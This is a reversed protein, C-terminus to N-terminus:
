KIWLWFKLYEMSKKEFILFVLYFKKESGQNQSMAMATRSKVLSHMKENEEANRTNM